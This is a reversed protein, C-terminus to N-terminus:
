RLIVLSLCSVVVSSLVFLYDWLGLKPLTRRFKGYLKVTYAAELENAVKITFVLLPLVVKSPSFKLGRVKLNEILERGVSIFTPYYALAIVLPVGREGFVDLVTPRDVLESAILYSNVYTMIRTAFPFLYLRHFNSLVIFSAAVVAAEIVIVRWKRHVLATFGMQLVGNTLAATASILILAPLVVAFNLKM